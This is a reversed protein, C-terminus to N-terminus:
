NKRPDDEHNLFNLAVSRNRQDPHNSGGQGLYLSEGHSAYAHFSGAPLVNGKQNNM